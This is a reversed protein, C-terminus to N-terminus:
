NGNDKDINNILSSLVRADMFKNAKVYEKILSSYNLFLFDSALFDGFSRYAFALDIWNDVNRPSLEITKFFCKISKGFDGEIYYLYGLFAWLVESDPKIKLTQITQKELEDIDAPKLDLHCLKDLIFDDKACQNELYNPIRELKFGIIREIENKM